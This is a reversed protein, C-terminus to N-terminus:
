PWVMHPLITSMWDGVASILRPFFLLLFVFSLFWLAFIYHDARNCLAVMIFLLKCKKYQYQIFCTILLLMTLLRAGAACICVECKNPVKCSFMKAKLVISSNASCWSSCGAQLLISHHPAPMTLQRACSAFSKCITWIIQMHDLQHWQWGMMEQKM